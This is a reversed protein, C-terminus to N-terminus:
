YVCRTIHRCISGLLGLKTWNLQGVKTSGLPMAAKAATQGRFFQNRLERFNLHNTTKQAKELKKLRGPCARHSIDYRYIKQIKKYMHCVHVFMGM